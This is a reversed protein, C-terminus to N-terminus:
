AAPLCSSPWHFGTEFAKGLAARTGKAAASCLPGEGLVPASFEGRPFSDLKQGIRTRELFGPHEDFMARRVEAHILAVRRPIANYGAGAGDVAARDEDIGLIKGNKPTRKGLRVRLLDGLQLVHREVIARRDDPKEIRAAGADLFPDRCERAVALNELAVDQRGPHDGLNGEHHTRARAAVDVGRREGIEDEHDLVRAIHEHGAGVHHPRHGVLRHAGLIEASGGHVRHFARHGVAGIFVVDLSQEM